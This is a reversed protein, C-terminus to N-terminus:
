FQTGPQEGVHFGQGNLIEIRMGVAVDHGDVGVVHVSQTLEDALANRLQHIRQHRQNGGKDAHQDHAPLQGHEGEQHQRQGQENRGLQGSLGALVENCLLALQAHHVAVNLFHHFALLDHLDEAMFFLRHLLEMLQIFFEALASFVSHSEGVHHTGDIGVQTVQAVHQAGNHTSHKGQARAGNGQTLQNREQRQVLVERTGHHLDALLHGRHHHSHSTCVTHEGQHIFNGLRIFAVHFQDICFLLVALQAFCVVAGAHPCPLMGMLCFARHGVGLQCAAYDKIIYGEPIGRFLHNEM